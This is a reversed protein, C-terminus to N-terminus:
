PETLYARPSFAWPIEKLKEEIQIFLYINEPITIKEGSPVIYFLFFGLIGMESFSYWSLALKWYAESWGLM